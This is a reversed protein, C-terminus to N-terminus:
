RPTEEPIKRTGSEFREDENKVVSNRKVKKYLIWLLTNLRFCVVKNKKKMRLLFRKLRAVRKM